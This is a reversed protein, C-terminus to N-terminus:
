MNWDKSNLSKLQVKLDDLTKKTPILINFWREIKGRNERFYKQLLLDAERNIQAKTFQNKGSKRIAEKAGESAYSALFAQQVKFYDGEPNLLLEDVFTALGQDTLFLLWDYADRLVILEKNPNDSTFWNGHNSVVGITLIFDKYIDKKDTAIIEELLSEYEGFRFTGDEIPLVGHVIGESNRVKQLSSVTRAVYAGQKAKEITQPGKRMGDEVGVRKCEVMAYPKEIQETVIIEIAEDSIKHVVAVLSSYQGRAILCSNKITDMSTYLVSSLIKYSTLDVGKAKLAMIIKASTVPSKLPLGLSIRHRIPHITYEVNHSISSNRYEILGKEIRVNEEFGWDKLTYFTIIEILTGLARGSAKKADKAYHFVEKALTLQLKDISPYSM